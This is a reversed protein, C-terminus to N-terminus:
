TRKIITSRGNKDATMIYVDRPTLGRGSLTNNLWKDDKSIQSLAEPSVQGGSIVAVPPDSNEAKVNAAKCDPPQSSKKLCVSIKGTTEVVAFQVDDLDFCGASRLSAMLDDPSFRLEQLVQQDIRGDSIIIKASGSVIKNLRNSRMSVYSLLVDLSVITFVPVVGVLVPINLDEVPLTAINSLMITVVLETPQLEGLQRKGMLRIALVIVAYLIVARFFVILITRM